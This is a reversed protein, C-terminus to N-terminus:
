SHSIPRINRHPLSQQIKHMSSSLILPKLPGLCGLKLLGEQTVIIKSSFYCSPAYSRYHVCNYYYYVIIISNTYRWSTKFICLRQLSQVCVFPNHLWPVHLTASASSLRSDTSSYGIDHSITDFAAFIDLEVLVSCFLNYCYYANGVTYLIEPKIIKIGNNKDQLGSSKVRNVVNCLEIKDSLPVCIPLRFLLKRSNRDLEPFHDLNPM